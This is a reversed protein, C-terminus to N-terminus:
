LWAVQRKGAGRFVAVSNSAIATPNYRTPLPGLGFSDIICGAVLRHTRRFTSLEYRGTAPRNSPTAFMTGLPLDLSVL